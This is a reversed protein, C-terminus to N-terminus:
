KVPSDEPISERSHGSGPMQRSSKSANMHQISEMSPLRRRVKRFSAGLSSEQNSQLRLVDRFNSTRMDITSDESAYGAELGHLSIRKMEELDELDTNDITPTADSAHSSDERLEDSPMEETVVDWM